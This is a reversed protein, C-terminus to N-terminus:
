EQSYLLLAENNTDNLLLAENKKKKKKLISHELMLEDMTDGVEELESELRAM